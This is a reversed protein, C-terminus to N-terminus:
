LFPTLYRGLIHPPAHCCSPWILHRDADQPEPAPLCILGHMRCTAKIEARLERTADERQAEVTRNLSPAIPTEFVIVRIGSASIKGLRALDAKMGAIMSPWATSYSQFHPEAKGLKEMERSGDSRFLEGYAITTPTQWFMLIATLREINFKTVFDRVGVALAEAVARALVVPSVGARFEELIYGLHYAPNALITPWEVHRFYKIDHNDLTILVTQPAKGADQLAQILAVSQRLGTSGSSFNFFEDEKLGLHSHSIGMGRSSGFLGYRFGEHRLAHGYKVILPDVSGALYDYQEARSPTWDAGFVPASQLVSSLGAQGAILAAITLALVTLGLRSRRRQQTLLTM